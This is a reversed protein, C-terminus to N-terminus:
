LTEKKYCMEKVAEVMVQNITIDKEHAIKALALFTDDDLDVPITSEGTDFNYTEVWELKRDNFSFLHIYKKGNGYNFLYEWHEDDIEGYYRIEGEPSEAFIVYKKYKQNFLMECLKIKDTNM